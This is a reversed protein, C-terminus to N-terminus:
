EQAGVESEPNAHPGASPPGRGIAQVPTPTCVAWGTKVGCGGERPGLLVPVALHSRPRREGDGHAGPQRWPPLHSGQARANTLQCTRASLTHGYSFSSVKEPPSPPCPPMTGARHSGPCCGRPECQQRGPALRRAPSPSPPGAGRRRVKRLDLVWVPRSSFTERETERWRWGRVGTDQQGPETGAGM